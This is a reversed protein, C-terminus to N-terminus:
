PPCAAELQAVLAKLHKPFPSDLIDRYHSKLSHGLIFNVQQQSFTLNNPINDMIERNDNRQM